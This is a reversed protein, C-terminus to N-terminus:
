QTESSTASTADDTSGGAEIPGRWMQIAQFSVVALVMIIVFFLLSRHELRQGRRIEIRNVIWDSVWYLVLAVVTYVVMEM